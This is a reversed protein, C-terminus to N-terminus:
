KVSRMRDYQQTTLLAFLLVGQYEGSIEYQYLGDPGREKFKVNTCKKNIAEADWVHIKMTNNDFHFSLVQFDKLKKLLINLHNRLRKRM